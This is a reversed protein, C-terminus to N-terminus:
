FNAILNQCEARSNVKLKKFVSMKHTSVTNPSINMCVAIVKDPKGKSLYQLVEKEKDTLGFKDIGTVKSQWKQCRCDPECTFDEALQIEGNVVDPTHDLKGFMCMAYENLAESLTYDRLDELAIPDNVLMTYLKSKIEQPLKDIVRTRGNQIFYAVRNEKDSFIEINNDGPVIGPIISKKNDKGKM